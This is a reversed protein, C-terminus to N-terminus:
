PRGFGKAAWITAAIAGISLVVGIAYRLFRQLGNQIAEIKELAQLRKDLDVIVAQKEEIEENARKIERGLDRRINELEAFARDILRRDIENVM